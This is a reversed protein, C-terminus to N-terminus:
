RCEFGGQDAFGVYPIHGPPTHLTPGLRESSTRSVDTVPSRRRVRPLLLTFRGAHCRIASRLPHSQQRQRSPPGAEYRDAEGWAAGSRVQHPGPLKVIHRVM